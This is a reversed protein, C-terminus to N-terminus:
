DTKISNVPNALAARIAQTSVTLLTILIAAIGILAFISWGINIRYAFGKLWNNMIYWSVPGAIVFAIIVLKLFDMSLMTIISTVSAGLVKRIGIEKSRKRATFTALGFVGLCAVFITLAAFITLTKATNAESRYTDTFRQDLFSYSFLVNTNMREWTRKLDALLPGPDAARTKIIYFPGYSNERLTMVLPSIRTHMSRFHFDKVVGVVHYTSSIGDNSTRQFTKGIADNGWGMAKVASENLIAASTDTGFTPSFNRGASIDMGMVPIYNEDVEYRLTKIQASTNNEFVFFNNSWSNGSPLYGSVTLGAVQSQQLIYNKLETRQGDTLQNVDQLILIQEKNYGLKKHQIYSLQKYVVATSVMLTISIFFQFVVLGSRLRSGQKGGPTFSTKLAAQPKFSALFFAPYCGAIIGIVLASLVLSLILWPQGLWHLQINRGSIQNFAPLALMAIIAAIATAIFTLMISELLFQLTLRGKPAGLVKRMAVEKVRGVANATTLNMFNICAILIMFLVIAGFIYIYRIDGPVDLDGSFNSHLHIDTLPQLYIGINNGGAKFESLTLHMSLQMQPSMYKDLLSPFKAELKHYDYGPRLLLYTFYGSTMWSDSKADPVSAMSALLDFHFHANEPMDQFVGTILFDQGSNKFRLTQGVPNQNGFYKLATSSSLAMTNPANLITNVDGSLLNVSFIKFFSPDAYGLFPEQFTKGDHQLLVAGEARIRVADEVEPFEAKLTAAVPPFVNAENMPEGKVLGRFVVRVIRDAQKNFRDYSLEHAIYLLIVLSTAIGIALGTINIASFAKNKWLNRFAIKLYNYIM